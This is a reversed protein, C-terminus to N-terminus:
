RRKENNLVEDYINMYNLIKNEYLFKNSLDKLKYKIHRIKSSNELIYVIKDKLNDKLDRIKKGDYLFNYRSDLVVAAGFKNQCLVPVGYSNAELIITGTTERLSPLVVVDANCYEIKMSEYDVKGILFIKEGLNNKSIFKKIKNYYKGEGVIRVEYDYKKDVELLTELFFLHGKRYILRGPILFIIKEKNMNFCLPSNVKNIGIETFINNNIRNGLFLSTEYNAFLIKDITNRRFLYVYRYFVNIFFRLIEICKEKMNLYKFLCKSIYEGGGVPGVIFKCEKIYGYKGIARFEVPTVQHIIDISYTKVIKKAEKYVKNNWINLRGSYFIGKYLKKLFNPIDVFIFTINNYNNEICYKEINIRQEEKTIVFVDNGLKASEFPISWGIQDESGNYPNCSYAIYLIKM